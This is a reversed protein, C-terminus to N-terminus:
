KACKRQKFLFYLAKLKEDKMELVIVMLWWTLYHLRVKILELNGRKEPPVGGKVPYGMRVPLPVSNPRFPTAAPYVATWDQDLPMKDTRPPRVQYAFCLYCFSAKDITFHCSIWSWQCCWSSTGWKLDLWINEDFTNWIRKNSFAHM